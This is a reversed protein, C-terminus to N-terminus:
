NLFPLIHKFAFDWPCFSSICWSLITCIGFVVATVVLYKKIDFGTFFLILLSFGLCMFFSGWGPDFDVFTSLIMTLMAGPYLAVVVGLMVGLIILILMGFASNGGTDESTNGYSSVRNTSTPTSNLTTTSSERDDISKVVYQDIFTSGCAPCHVRHTTPCAHWGCNRCTIDWLHTM